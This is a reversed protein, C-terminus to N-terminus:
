GRTPICDGGSAKVAGCIQTADQLSNTPMRVRFYIGKAGLDVRQIELKGGGLANGFKRQVSDLAAQADTTSRQSSLQVYAPASNGTALNVSATGASPATGSEAATLPASKPATGPRETALNGILDVPKDPNGGNDNILANIASTPQANALQARNVPRPMPIPAVVDGIPAASANGAATPDATAQDASSITPPTDATPPSAGGASALLGSSGDGAGPVAPVNPRDVPLKAGGAVADDSSVITGDPRVTVTRVKRNALGTDGTSAQPTPTAVDSSGATQDRSVLQENGAPAATGNLEDLVVSRPADTSAAPKPVAKAPAADAILTPAKGDNHGMGLFWYGGFGAALLLTGAVAPVVFQRFPGGSAPRLRKPARGRPQKVTTRRSFDSEGAMPSDIRGVQVGTAAAAALVADDASNYDGDPERLTTRRPAFQASLPPVVPQQQVYPQPPPPAPQPAPRATLTPRGLEPPPAALEVRVAEGILNEIEDMPDLAAPAPEASPRGGLGFVPATAFRDNEPPLQRASFNVPRLPPQLPAQAPRPPAANGYQAVIPVVPMVPAVPAGLPRAADLEAAILAAIPDHSADYEMAPALSPPQTVLRSSSAAPQPAPQKATGFGFDFDFKAADAPVPPAPSPPAFSAPPPVARFVPEERLPAAPEPRAARDQWSSLPEPSVIPAPAPPKGFDFKNTVPGSPTLPPQNMGPIRISPQPSAPPGESPVIRPPVAGNGAPEKVESAMLKALETMLDDSNDPQGSMHQPKAPTM